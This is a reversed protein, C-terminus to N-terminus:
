AKDEPRTTGKPTLKSSSRKPDRNEELERPRATLRAINRRRLTRECLGYSIGGAGFGYALVETVKFETLFAIGVQAFTYKGALSKVASATVAIIGFIFGWRILLPLATSALDVL